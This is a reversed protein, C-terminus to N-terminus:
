LSVRLLTSENLGALSRTPKLQSGELEMVVGQGELGSKLIKLEFWLCNFVWKRMLLM